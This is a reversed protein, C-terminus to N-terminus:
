LADGHAQLTAAAQELAALTLHDTTSLYHKYTHQHITRYARWSRTPQGRKSDRRAHFRGHQGVFRFSPLTALWDFWEPSDPAFPLIGQSPCVLVSSGQGGYEILATVRARARVETPLPHQGLPPSTTAPDEAVMQVLPPLPASALLHQVLAGLVGLRQRDRAVELVLATVQEQCTILSRQLHALHGTRAAADTLTASSAPAPL